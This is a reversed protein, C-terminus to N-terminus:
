NKNKYATWWEQKFTPNTNLFHVFLDIKLQTDQPLAMLTINHFRSQLEHSVSKINHNIENAVTAQLGSNNKFLVGVNDSMFDIVGQKIKLIDEPTISNQKPLANALMAKAQAPNFSKFSDM